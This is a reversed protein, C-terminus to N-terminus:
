PRAGSPRSARVISVVGGVIFMGGYVYVNRAGVIPVGEQVALVFAGFAVLTLAVSMATIDYGIRDMLAAVTAGTGLALITLALFQLDAPSRGDRIWLAIILGAVSLMLGPAWLSGRSRSAAAAALYTLGIILSIWYFAVPGIEILLIMVIGGTLLACGKNRRERVSEAAPRRDSAAPNM